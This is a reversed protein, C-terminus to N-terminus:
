SSAARPALVASNIRGWPFNGIAPMGGAAGKGAAANRGAEVGGPAAEARSPATDSVFNGQDAIVWHRDFGLKSVFARAQEFVPRHAPLEFLVMGTNPYDREPDVQAGCRAAYAPLTAQVAGLTGAHSPHYSRVWGWHGPPVVEFPSPCDKRIVVDADYYLVRYGDGFHEDLHLKEEYHHRPGTPSLIECYDAGWRRAAERISNRANPLVCDTGVNLTCVIKRLSSEVAAKPPEPCTRCIERRRQV